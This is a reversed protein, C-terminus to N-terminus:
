ESISEAILKSQHAIGKVAELMKLFVPSAIPLCLGEILREEHHTAYEITAKVVMAESEQIYRLLVPNKVMVLDSAAKIIELLNQSLFSVETIARDSFLINEEIKKRLMEALTELNDCIYLFHQPIEKYVKRGNNHRIMKALEKSLEPESARIEALRAVCEDLEGRSSFIFSKQLLELCEVTRIGMTHLRHVLETWPEMIIDKRGTAYQAGRHGIVLPGDGHGQVSM